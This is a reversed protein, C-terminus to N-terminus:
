KMKVRVRSKESPSRRWGCISREWATILKRKAYNSHQQQLLCMKTKVYSRRHRFLSPKLRPHPFFKKLADFYKEVRLSKLSNSELNNQQFQYPKFCFRIKMEFSNFSDGFGSFQALSLM